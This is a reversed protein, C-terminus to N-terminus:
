RRQSWNKMGESTSEVQFPGPLHYDREGTAFSVDQNQGNSICRRPGAPWIATEGRVTFPPPKNLSIQSECATANMGEEGNNNLNFYFM